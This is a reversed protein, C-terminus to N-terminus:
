VFHDPVGNEKILYLFVVPHPRSVGLAMETVSLMGAPRRAQGKKAAKGDFRCHGSLAFFAAPLRCVSECRHTRERNSRSERNDGSCDLAGSHTKGTLELQAIATTLFGGPFTNAESRRIVSFNNAELPEAAIPFLREIREALAAM